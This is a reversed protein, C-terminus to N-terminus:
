YSNIFSLVHILYELNVRPLIIFDFNQVFGEMLFIGGLGAEEKSDKYFKITSHKM